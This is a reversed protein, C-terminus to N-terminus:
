LDNSATIGASKEDAANKATAARIPLPSTSSSPNSVFSVCPSLAINLIRFSIPASIFIFSVPIITLAFLKRPTFRSKFVIGSISGM